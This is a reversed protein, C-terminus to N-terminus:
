VRSFFQYIRDIVYDVYEDPIGNWLPLRVITSSLHETNKLSGAVRCNLFFPFSSGWLILLSTPGHAAIIIQDTM